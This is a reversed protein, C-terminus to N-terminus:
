DKLSDQTHDEHAADPKGIGHCIGNKIKFVYSNVLTGSLYAHGKSDFTKLANPAELERQSPVRVDQLQDFHSIEIMRL